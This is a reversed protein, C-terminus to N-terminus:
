FCGGPQNGELFALVHKWVKEQVEEPSGTAAILKVREPAERALSLYGERVRQRFSLGEQELRDKGSGRQLALGPELDLLITLFRGLGQLVFSNIFRLFQLDLGRGYGQYAISSDVFRDCLVVKGAALAPLIAERVLQARAGAYLFAEAVPSMGEFAPDLLLQRVAESLPTGGPERTVLVPYGRKQLKEATLRVQTTKGVGDLGEFSILKGRELM